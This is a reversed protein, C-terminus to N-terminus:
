TNRTPYGIYFRVYVICMCHPKFHVVFTEKGEKINIIHPHDLAAMIQIEQRIRRLDEANEIKSKPISKIAVQM